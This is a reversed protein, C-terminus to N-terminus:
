TTSIALADDMATANGTHSRTSTASTNSSSAMRHNAARNATTSHTKVCHVSVSKNSASSRRGVEPASDKRHFSTVRANPSNNTAAISLSSTDVDNRYVLRIGRDWKSRELIKKVKGSSDLAVILSMDGYSDKLKGVLIAYTWEQNTRKVFLPSNIPLKTLLISAQCSSTFTISHM